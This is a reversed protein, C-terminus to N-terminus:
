RLDDFCHLNPSCHPDLLPGHVPTITVLAARPNFISTRSCRLLLFECRLSLYGSVKFVMSIEVVKRSTSVAANEKPMRAPYATIM